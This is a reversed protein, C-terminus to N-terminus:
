SAGEAPELSLRGPLASSSVKFIVRHMTLPATKSSQEGHAEEQRNGQRVGDGGREGTEGRAQAGHRGIQAPRGGIRPVDSKLEEAAGLGILVFAEDRMQSRQFARGHCDLGDAESEELAGADEVEADLGCGWEEHELLADDGRCGEAAELLFGAGVMGVDREAAGFAAGRIQAGEGSAEGAWGTEPGEGGALEQEVFAM